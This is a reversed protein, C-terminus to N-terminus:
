GDLAGGCSSGQGATCGYCHDKVVIPLGYVQDVLLEKLHTKPRDEAILPLDLMQNFDCDYVYGQWDVSVLNKCMVTDLNQPQYAEKLLQMYSAFEGKSILWSGFRKIPMNTITFLQNFAVGFREGLQDKYTAELEGQTPPLYAGTPNYVLNLQLGSGESGYGLANLRKLGNISAEFVGNGRQMDVNDQLYCPLSAVIDVQHDALFEALDEYGPEELITLNCRDMVQVGLKRSETVLYRFYPNMEPAGGTLDLTHIDSQQLFDLITHVTGKDMVEKRRPGANVHCHICTQNCLYGLNAQLMELKDRRIAPFDSKELLPLTAHM